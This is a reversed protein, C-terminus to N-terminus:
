LVSLDKEQVVRLGYIVEEKGHLKAWGNLNSKPIKTPDILTAPLHGDAIARCLAKVDVVTAKWTKRTGGSAGTHTGRGRVSTDAAPTAAAIDILAAAREKDGAQAAAEADALAQEEAQRQLEAAEEARRKEEAESWKLGARKFNGKAEDLADFIPKFQDRIWKVHATLPGVLKDLVEKAEKEKQITFKVADICKTYDEESTIVARRSQELLNNASAISPQSHTLLATPTLIEPTSM